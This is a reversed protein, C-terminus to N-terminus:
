RSGTLASTCTPSQPDHNRVPYFFVAGILFAFLVGYWRLDVNWFEIAFMAFFLGLALSIGYWWMPVDANSEHSQESQKPSILACFTDWPKRMALWVVDSHELAVWVILSALTAIALAFTNLAYTIPM